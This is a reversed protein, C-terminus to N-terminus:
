PLELLATAFNLVRFAGVHKNGGSNFVRQYIQRLSVRIKIVVELDSDQGVVIVIRM